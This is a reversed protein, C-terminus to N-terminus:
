RSDGTAKAAPCVDTLKVAVLTVTEASWAATIVAAYLPAMLVTERLRSAGTCNVPKTHEEATNLLPPDVVHVAENFLVVEILAAIASAVFLAATETGALTVM